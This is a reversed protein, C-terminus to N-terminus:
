IDKICEGWPFLKDQRQQIKVLKAVTEGKSLIGLSNYVTHISPSNTDDDFMKMPFGLMTLVQGFVCGISGNSCEGKTYFCGPDDPHVKGYVNDPSKKMYDIVIELLDEGTMFGQCIMEEDTVGTQICEFDINYIKYESPPTEKQGPIINKGQVCIVMTATGDIRYKYGQVMDTYKM